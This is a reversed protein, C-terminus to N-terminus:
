RRVQRRGIALGAWFALVLLGVGTVALGLQTGKSVFSGNDGVFVTDSLPAYAFFGFDTSQNNWAVILGVIVAVLGLLPVVVVALKRAPQPSHHEGPTNNDGM